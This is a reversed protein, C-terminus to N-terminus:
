QQCIPKQYRESLVPIVRFDRIILPDPTKLIQENCTNNKFCQLEMVQVITKTFGNHILHTLKLPHLIATQIRSVLALECINNEKIKNM